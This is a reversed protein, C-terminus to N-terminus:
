FVKKIETAIERARQKSIFRMQAVLKLNNAGIFMGILVFIADRILGDWGGICVGWIFNGLIDAM